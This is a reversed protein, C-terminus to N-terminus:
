PLRFSFGASVFWDAAADSLGFGSSVDLQLDDSLLYTVGGDFSNAPGTSNSQTPVEGYFEIFAGLQDTLGMGLAATYIFQNRQTINGSADEGTKWATGLNYGFSLSENLTHSFAFRLDPDVQESSLGAKGTPVSLHTLVATEPIWGQEENLRYKLGVAMDSSGDIRTTSNGATTKQWQYGDWALRLELNEILGYRILTEPTSDSRVNDTDDHVSHTYGIEFQIAQVDVTSSSETQDPRDTILPQSLVPTAFSLCFCLCLCRLIVRNM